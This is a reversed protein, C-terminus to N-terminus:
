EGNTFATHVIKRVDLTVCTGSEKQSDITIAIGERDCYSKVLALGIGEGQSDEEGQYYREYVRVLQAEDMGIGRDEIQLRQATLRVDIPSEKPSYKM